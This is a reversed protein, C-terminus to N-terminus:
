RAGSIESGFCPAKGRRNVVGRQGAQHVPSHHDDFRLFCLPCTPEWLVELNKGANGAGSILLPIDEPLPLGMGTLMLVIALGVYPM